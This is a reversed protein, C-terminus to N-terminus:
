KHAGPSVKNLYKYISICCVGFGNACSGDAEGGRDLCEQLTYCTGNRVGAGDCVDNQFIILYKCLVDVDSDGCAHDQSWFNPVITSTTKCHGVVLYM